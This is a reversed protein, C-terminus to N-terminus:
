TAAPRARRPTGARATRRPAARTSACAPSRAHLHPRLQLLDLDVQRPGLRGLRRLRRVLAAGQPARRRAARLLGLGSCDYGSDKWDGHGGGYKYPKSPSRTARPSSTRSRRRPTRRRRPRATATSRRRAACSGAPDAGAVRRRHELGEGQDQPRAAGPRLARRQGVPPLPARVEQRPDEDGPRVRRRRDHPLRGELPVAADDQRRLGGDGRAAHAHRLPDAGMAPVALVVAMLAALALVARVIMRNM